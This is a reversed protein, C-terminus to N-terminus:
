GRSAQVRDAIWQDVESEVWAVAKASIRISQPFDGEKMLQYISTKGLGTKERVLNLRILRYKEANSM